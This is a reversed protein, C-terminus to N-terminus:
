RTTTDNDRWQGSMTVVTLLIICPSSSEGHESELARRGGVWCSSVASIVLLFFSDKAQQLWSLLWLFLSKQWEGWDPCWVFSWFTMELSLIVTNRARPATNGWSPRRMVTAMAESSSSLLNKTVESDVASVVVRYSSTKLAMTLKKMYCARTEWSNNNHSCFHSVRVGTEWITSLFNSKM